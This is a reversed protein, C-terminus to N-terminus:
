EPDDAITLVRDLGTTAFVKSVNPRPHQVVLDSGVARARRCAAVLIGLGTSDIFTMESLDLVVLPNGAHGIQGNIMERLYGSSAVDVEGTLHFEVMPGFNTVQIDLGDPLSLSLELNPEQPRASFGRYSELATEFQNSWEDFGQTWEIFGTTGGTGISVEPDSLADSPTITM